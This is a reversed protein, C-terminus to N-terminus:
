RLGERSLVGLFYAAAGGVTGGDGTKERHLDDGVSNRGSGASSEGQTYVMERRGKM